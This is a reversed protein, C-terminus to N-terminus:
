MLSMPMIVCFYHKDEEVSRFIAPRMSETM